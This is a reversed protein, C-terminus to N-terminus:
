MIVTMTTFQYKGKLGYWELKSYFLNLFKKKEKILSKGIWHRFRLKFITSKVPMLASYSAIVIM